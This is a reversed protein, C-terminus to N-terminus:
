QAPTSAQYTLASFSLRELEGVPVVLPDDRDRLTVRWEVSKEEGDEGYSYRIDFTGRNDSDEDFWWTLKSEGDVEALRYNIEHGAESRMWLLATMSELLRANDVVGRLAAFDDRLSRPIERGDLSEPRIPELEEVDITDGTRMIESALLNLGRFQRTDLNVEWIATRPEGGQEWQFYARYFNYEGPRIREPVVTWGFVQDAGLPPDQNRFYVLLASGLRAGQEFAHNTLAEVVESERNLLRALEETTGSEVIEAFVNAAVVGNSGEPQLGQPDLQVIWAPGFEVARERLVFQVEYVSDELQFGRWGVREIQDWHLNPFTTRLLDSEVTQRITRPTEPASPSPFSDQRWVRNTARDQKDAWRDIEINTDEPEWLTQEENVLETDDDPLVLLVLLVILLTVMLGLATLAVVLKTRERMHESVANGDRLYRGFIP